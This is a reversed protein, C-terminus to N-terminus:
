LWVLEKQLFNSPYQCFYVRVEFKFIGHGHLEFLVLILDLNLFCLSFVFFVM